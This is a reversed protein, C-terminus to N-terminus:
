RNTRLQEARSIAAIVSPHIRNLNADLWQWLTAIPVLERFGGDEMLVWVFGDSAPKFATQEGTQPFEIIQGM